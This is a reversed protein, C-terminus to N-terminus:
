DDDSVIANAENLLYGAWGRLGANIQYNCIIGNEELGFSVSVFQANPASADLIFKVNSCKPVLNTYRKPVSLTKKVSGMIGNLPIIWDKAILSPFELLRIYNKDEGTEIYVLETPNIIGDNNDDARWVALDNDADPTKCVLKCHKILDSIKLTAYRLQAQKQATDDSGDKVSGLAYALTAVAALIISTVMLAVLLEVLTFANKRGISHM